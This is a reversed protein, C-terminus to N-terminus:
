HCFMLKGLQNSADLRTQRRGRLDRVQPIDHM